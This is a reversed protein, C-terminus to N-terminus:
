SDVATFDIALEVGVFVVLQVVAPLQVWVLFVRLDDLADLALISGEHRDVRVPLLDIVPDLHAAAPCGAALLEQHLISLLVQRFLALLVLDDLALRCNALDPRTAVAFVAGVALVMVAVAQRLQVEILKYTSGSIVILNFM